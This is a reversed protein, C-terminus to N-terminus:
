MGRVLWALGRPLYFGAARQDTVDNYHLFSTVMGCMIIIDCRLTNLIKQFGRERTKKKEIFIHHKTTVLFFFGYTDPNFFRDRVIVMLNLWLM